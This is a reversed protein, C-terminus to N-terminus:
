DSDPSSDSHLHSGFSEIIIITNMENSM